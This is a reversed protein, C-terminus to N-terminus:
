TYSRTGHNPDQKLASSPIFVPRPFHRSPIHIREYDTLIRRSRNCSCEHQRGSRKTALWIVSFASAFVALTAFFTM